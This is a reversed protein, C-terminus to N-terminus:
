AAVFEGFLYKITTWYKGFKGQADKELYGTVFDRMEEESLDAEADLFPEIAKERLKNLKPIDLGLTKITNTAATDGTIAEEIVGNGFFKFRGECNPDFPSIMVPYNKRKYGCHIPYGQKHQGICSCLMNFYDLDNGLRASQPCFHEIHSDDERLADECYCCIHGQEEILADKVARRTVSDLKKYTQVGKKTKKWNTLAPPEVNKKVIYKM